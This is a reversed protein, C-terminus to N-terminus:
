LSHSGQSEVTPTARAYPPPPTPADPPVESALEEDIGLEEVLFRLREDAPLALQSINGTDDIEIRKGFATGIVGSGRNLRGYLAYNFPGWSRTQEHLSRFSMATGNLHEIRCDVGGLIHLPRWRVIWQGQRLGLRVGWAEHVVAALEGSAVLELPEGHLISADVVYRRGECSVVVTGHNPPTNPRTLITAIGRVSEFGLTTVLAYLAGNGAWCTGGTGYRLWGEFFDIADAGPLPGSNQRHLSILKRVNDYPVARCWARYLAALGQLTPSPRHSLGLRILVRETLSPSLREAPYRL